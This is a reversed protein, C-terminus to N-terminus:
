DVDTMGLPIYCWAGKDNKYQARIYRKSITPQYSEEIIRVGELFREDG